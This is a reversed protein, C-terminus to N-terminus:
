RAHDRPNARRWRLVVMGVALLQGIFKVRYDLDYRDDWAGFVVLVGAALLFWRDEPQLDIALLAAVLVGLAM